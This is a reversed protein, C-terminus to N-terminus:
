SATNNMCIQSYDGSHLAIYQLFDQRAGCQLERGCDSECRIVSNYEAKSRNCGMQIIWIVNINYVRKTPRSLETPIAVRQPSPISDRHPRSKGHGDLGTRPDVWGGIFHTGPRQRPYLPLLTVNVVWGM